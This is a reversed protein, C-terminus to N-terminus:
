LFNVILSVETQTDVTEALPLYGADYTMSPLPLPAPSNDFKLLFAVRLSIQSALKTTLAAKANIRTDQFASVNGQPANESNLNFLGEVSALFGTDASLKGNYGVFLRASHIVLTDTNPAVFSQATLDYGAEAVLENSDDKYLQRSYGIQGGGYLSKGAPEDAGIKAAVFISNVDEFFRDYRLKLMWNKATTSDVRNIEGPGITGNMNTDSFVLVSSRAFAFGGELSFKNDTDKRSLLAGGSFTVTRSNGTTAVLGASASAKWEVEKVDEKKGYEFANVPTQASARSAIALIL